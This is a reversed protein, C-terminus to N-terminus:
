VDVDYTSNDQPFWQNGNRDLLCCGCVGNAWELIPYDPFMSKLRYYDDTGSVSNHHNNDGHAYCMVIAMVCGTIDISVPRKAANSIIRFEQECKWCDSKEFFIDYLNERFYDRPNGRIIINPNFDKEERYTVEKYYFDSKSELKRILADKDFVICAGYGKDAYHGWMAPIYFGPYVGDTSLSTQCYNKLEQVADKLIDENEFGKGDENYTSLPRYSENIDNMNSLKGMFLKNTSLISIAKAISTYHYLKPKGIFQCPNCTMINRKSNAPRWRYGKRHRGASYKYFREM